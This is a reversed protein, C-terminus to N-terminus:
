GGETRRGAQSRSLNISVFIKGLDYTVIGAEMIFSVTEKTLTSIKERSASRLEGAVYELPILLECITMSGNEYPEEVGIRYCFWSSDIITGSVIPGVPGTNIAYRDNM